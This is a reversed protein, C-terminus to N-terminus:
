MVGMINTRDTLPPRTKNHSTCRKLTKNLTTTIKEKKEVFSLNEMHKSFDATINM